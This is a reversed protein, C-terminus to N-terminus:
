KRSSLTTQKRVSEVVQEIARVVLEPEDLQIHHGSHEAVTLRHNSSLNVMKIKEQRKEDVLQKWEAASVGSPPDDSKGAMLVVLPKNGLPVPNVQRAAYMAQLEEPWFDDTAASLKPHSLAWLRIKQVEPPLKDFPAEIKPAGFIQLNFEAQKKDQETPPKPPSTKMTQVPPIVRDKATTRIRVLKGQYQLTTNEDTSDVLVMGAVEQPYEHAYVRAILGGVSHGVLGYPAKLKAKKLLLHLEFADQRMTRPTPGLDSWALGARDYSAVRAFASVKPQVLCWDFSFDGAGAILVVTPTGSGTAHIHLRYGGLDVLEGSPPFGVQNPARDSAAMPPSSILAALIVASLKPLFKM